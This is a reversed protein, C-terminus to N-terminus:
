MIRATLCADCTGSSSTRVRKTQRELCGSREGRDVADGDGDRRDDVEDEDGAVRGTPKGGSRTTM